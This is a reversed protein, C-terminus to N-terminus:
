AGALASAPVADVARAPLLRTLNGSLILQQERRKVGAFVTPGHVVKEVLRALGNTMRNLPWDTGFVIKHNIGLRFLHNLHAEWGDPFATGAFGGIDLYVNRRYSALYGTIDLHVLGGHGLIFDVGPFSRAAGDIQLPHAPEYALSGATPGTHVFVPLGHQACIEYYPFLREDSPSYGCPPYLKIGEFGYETVHREFDRLGEEGRRPDVGIFVWFRGPHRQRIEHHRAAMEDLSLRMPHTMGFDPVLLVTRAIGARDMEQVLDDAMDDRHQAQLASLARGPRTAIGEATHRREINAAVDAVFREPIFDASAVHCHADFIVPLDTSSTV